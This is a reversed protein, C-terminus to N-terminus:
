YLLSRLNMVLEYSSEYFKGDLYIYLQDFGINIDGDKTHITLEYQGFLQETQQVEVFEISALYELLREKKDKDEIKNNGVYPSFQIYEVDSLNVGVQNIVYEKRSCGVLSLLM